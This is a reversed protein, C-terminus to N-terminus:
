CIHYFTSYWFDSFDTRKPFDGPYFKQDCCVRRGVGKVEMEVGKVGMEVLEMVLDEELEIEMEDHIKQWGEVKVMGTELGLDELRM